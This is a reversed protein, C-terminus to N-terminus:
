AFIIGITMAAPLAPPVTITVLDLGRIILDSASYGFKILFPLTVAFGFVAICGM